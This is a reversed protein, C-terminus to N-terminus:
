KSAERRREDQAIWLPPLGKQRRREDQAIWTRVEAHRALHAALGGPNKFRRGCQACKLPRKM